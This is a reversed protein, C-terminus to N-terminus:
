VGCPSTFANGKIVVHHDDLNLEGGALPRFGMGTSLSSLWANPNLECGALPCLLLAKEAKCLQPLFPEKATKGVPCPPLAKRQTYSLFVQFSLVFGIFRRRSPCCSCRVTGGVAPRTSGTTRRGPPRVSSSRLQQCYGVMSTPLTPLPLDVRISCIRRGTSAWASRLCSVTTMKAALGSTSRQRRGPSGTIETDAM